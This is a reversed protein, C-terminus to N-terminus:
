VRARDNAIDKMQTTLQSMEKALKAAEVWESKLSHNYYQKFMRQVDLCIESYDTYTKM